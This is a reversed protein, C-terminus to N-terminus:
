LFNLESFPVFFSTHKHLSSLPAVNKYGILTPKCFNSIKYNIANILLQM